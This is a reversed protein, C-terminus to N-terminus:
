AIDKRTIKKGNKEYDVSWLPLGHLSSPTTSAKYTDGGIELTVYRNGLTNEEANQLAVDIQDVIKM